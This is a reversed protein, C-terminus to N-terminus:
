RAPGSFCRQSPTGRRGLAPVPHRRHPHHCGRHHGACGGHEGLDSRSAVAGRGAGQLVHLRDGAPLLLGVGREAGRRHGGALHPRGAGHRRVRLVQRHLGSHGSYRHAVAPVAVPARGGLTLAPGTGRLAQALLRVQGPVAGQPLHAGRVRGPEHVHLRDPLHAGGDGGPLHQQMWGMAALGGLLYGAHAISSYALMRKINTQVLAFINGVLMTIVSLVIFFIGWNHAAGPFAMVFAAMFVAFAGIKPGTSFFATVPTPAGQYVDPTWMHFPAASVKFALGVGILVVAVLVAASGGRTNLAVAIQHYNTAGTEGYVLSIGYLMIASAFSGTLFYKLSSENSKTRYRFYAALLYSSISMLEFAVYFLIFDRAGAMLDLGIVAFILLAYFEGMHRRHAELYSGAILVTILGTLGFLVKFFVAWYDLAMMGAFATRTEGHLIVAVVVSGIFGLLAIAMIATRDPPIEGCVAGNEDLQPRPKLFPEVMLIVLAAVLLILEPLIAIIDSANM